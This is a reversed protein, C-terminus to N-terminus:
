LNSDEQTRWEEDKTASFARGRLLRQRSSGAPMREL